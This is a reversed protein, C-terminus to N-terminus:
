PQPRDRAQLNQSLTSVLWRGCRVRAATPPAWPALQPTPTPHTHALITCHKPTNMPWAPDVPLTRLFKPSPKKSDTNRYHGRLLGIQLKELRKKGGATYGMVNETPSSCMLRRPM